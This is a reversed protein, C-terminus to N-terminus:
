EFLNQPDFLPGSAKHRRRAEHLVKELNPVNPKDFALCAIREFFDPWPGELSEWWSIVTSPKEFAWEFVTALFQAHFVRQEFRERSRFKPRDPELNHAASRIFDALWNMEGLLKLFRDHESPQPTDENPKKWFAHWWLVQSAEDSRRNLLSLFHSADDALRNLEKRTISRGQREPGGRPGHRNSDTSTAWSVDRTMLISIRLAEQIALALQDYSCQPKLAFGDLATAVSRSSIRNLVQSEEDTVHAAM